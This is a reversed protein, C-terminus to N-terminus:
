QNYTSMLTGVWYFDPPVLALNVQTVHQTNCTNGFSCQLQVIAQADTCLTITGASPRNTRWGTYFNAPTGNTGFAMCTITQPGANAAYRILLGGSTSDRELTLYDTRAVVSGLDKTVSNIRRVVLGSPSPLDSTGTESGSRLLGSARVSGAVDLSASPNTVGIGVGGQARILFQNPSTSAMGPGSADSWVFTGDHLARAGAGAAFSFNGAASNTLGGAVTAYLGSASNTAGGGVTSFDNTATNGGGGAVTSNNGSSWNGVGGGVVAGENGALNGSGGAITTAGGSNINGYGGGIVGSSADLYNGTGGAIVGGSGYNTNRTGAGIFTYLGVAYNGQGGGISSYLTPSIEEHGGIHNDVGGSISSFDGQIVNTRNAAGGGAIVSGRSGVILNNSYGGIFSAASTGAPLIKLARVGGVRLELPQSDATGLYNGNTPNAGINGNLLWVLNTRAINDALRADPIVGTALQTASLNTMGGGDGYFAGRFSNASNNLTIASAYTGSLQGSALAGSLQSAPLTGLLNSASNAMVAFPAATLAQLPNLATYAGSGNTRVDVELWLNSGGFLAAGFDLTATFLGGTVAQGSAFVTGVYNDGLSDTALRFRFDYTGNAPAGNANLRGQYTFATVQAQANGISSLVGLLALSHALINKM